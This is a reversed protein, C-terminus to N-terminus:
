EIIRIPAQWFAAKSTTPDLLTVQCTYEGASLNSLPISFKVPLTKLRNDWGGTLASPSTEFAKTRGRYFTAFAIVPQSESAEPRYAQLYVFLERDRRFVRTVSPILKQGNEVLPNASEARDKQKLANYLADKLDVRQSSLVVSSVPIRKTEKNLNPIVFRSLYTGIRGTENDRALFKITYKGPLLTFGTDYQIPRKALEAATADTLKVDVKDRVNQITTGFEDKVEGIFDIRTHEAGGRRALALERGPIKVALPAFYEARNLQFYDIEMAITLETVPDELMLADELQREKDAVTFKAFQKGAYYGQRYELSASLGNNLTIKIKRFKGDLASNSAYYGLLYYSAISERAQRIGSALDNSDLLSKGGTDAAISWLTDQSRQFNSQAAIATAGTYMEVGGQSGRSADGLPAQAVLGRADVPWFAVGARVASNVTARLQAQNDAGNLRLGSAFYVLVKKESLQGLMRAATQLASLQRDTNFVNFEGENQGFAAGTDSSSADAPNEDYGEGEGVVMTRLVKLLRMRDDTFDQLVQVAGGTFQLLALLDNAAMQSRVFKEAASLARVQDADQMATMDFYLAVLRRDRYRAKGPSEPAIRGKPLKEFLEARVSDPIAAAPAQRAPDLRQIEFFRIEQPASDETVTFDKATLGEVFKGNRDTVSVTEVVLQSTVQFDATPRPGSPANQGVQQGNAALAAALLIALGRRM